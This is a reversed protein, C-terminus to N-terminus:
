VEFFEKVKVMQDAIKIGQPCHQECVRCAICDSAKGFNKTLNDYYLDQISWALNTAMGKFYNKKDNYLHFYKPIAINQPCADTCYECATCPIEISSNVIAAARKVIAAEDDNLPVFNEMYSINDDMQDLKSMGSLVMFVNPLSAAFRVAWSAVSIKPNYDKFLEEAEPPVNALAGGKIPEMVVVKKGHKEATKYCKASQIAANDWDLYNIQLQVFNVEPHATLIEDLLEPKDHFSFGINKARGESKLKQLFDFGHFKVAKDHYTGMNLNHLLYYDFYDVGCKQCQERFFREKDEESQLLFMPLKTALIFNDRAHRDVLCEKVARESEGEHYVYATDFYTFGREIFKDVMACMQGKDISKQNNEDLLPLRMCGFGLNKM